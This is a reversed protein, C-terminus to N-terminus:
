HLHLLYTGHSKSKATYRKETADVNKDMKEKQKEWQELDGKKCPRKARKKNTPTKQKNGVMLTVIKATM